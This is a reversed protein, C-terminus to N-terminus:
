CLGDCGILVDGQSLFWVDGQCMGADPAGLVVRVTVGSAMTCTCVVAALGEPVHSPVSEAKSISTVTLTRAELALLARLAEALHRTHSQQPIRFHLSFSHLSFTFHHHHHHTIPPICTHHIIPPICTHHIIPVCTHHLFTHARKLRCMGWVRSVCMCGVCMCGVCMCGACKRGACLICVYGVRHVDLIDRRGCVSVKVEASPALLVVDEWGSVLVSGQEGVVGPLAPPPVSAPGPLTPPTASYLRALLPPFLTGSQLCAFHVQAAHTAIAFAEEITISDYCLFAFFIRAFHSAVLAHPTTTRPWYM